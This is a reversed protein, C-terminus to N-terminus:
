RDAETQSKRQMQWFSGVTKFSDLSSCQSECPSYYKKPMSHSSNWVESVCFVTKDFPSQACSHNLIETVQAFVVMLVVFGHAICSLSVWLGDLHIALFALFVTNSGASSSVECHCLLRETPLFFHDGQTNVWQVFTSNIITHEYNGQQGQDNGLFKVASWKERSYTSWHNWPCYWLWEPMSCGNWCHERGCAVFCRLHSGECDEFLKWSVSCIMRQCPADNLMPFSSKLACIVPRQMEASQKPNNAPVRSAGVAMSKM